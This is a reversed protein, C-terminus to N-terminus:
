KAMPWLAPLGVRIARLRHFCLARRARRQFSKGSPSITASRATSEHSSPSRASCGTASLASRARIAWSGLLPERQSLVADLEHDVAQLAGTLHAREVANPDQDRGLRRRPQPLDNIRRTVQERQTNLTTARADLNKVRQLQRTPLGGVQARLQQIRHGLERLREASAITPIPQARAVAQVQRPERPSSAPRVAETDDARGAGPAAGAMTRRRARPRQSPLHRADAPESFIQTRGARDAWELYNQPRREHLAALVRREAPDHQRMVERSTSSGAQPAAWPRSGARLRTTRPRRDRDGERRGARRSATTACQARDPGHGGRRPHSRM